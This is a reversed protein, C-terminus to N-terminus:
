QIAPGVLELREAVMRQGARSAFWRILEDGDSEMLGGTLRRTAPISEFSVATGNGDVIETDATVHLTIGGDLKLTKSIPDKELVVAEGSEAAMPVGCLLLGGALVIWLWSRKKAVNM